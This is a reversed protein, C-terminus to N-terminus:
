IMFGVENSFTTSDETYPHRSLNSLGSYPPDVDLSAEIQTQSFAFNLTFSFRM